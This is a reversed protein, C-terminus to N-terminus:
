QVELSLTAVLLWTKYIVYLEIQVFFLDVDNIISSDTMYMIFFYVYIDKKKRPKKLM